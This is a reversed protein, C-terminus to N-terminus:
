TEDLESDAIALPRTGRKVVVNTIGLVGRLRDDPVRVPGPPPTTGRVPELFATSRATHCTVAGEIKQMIQHVHGTLVTVSGFRKVLSLAQAADETGWGWSEVVTRLPVHAFLVIPTSSSRGKLDAALWALQAPGLTGLGSSKAGPVNVLGVFHVNNHDFAYWGTGAANLRKGRREM